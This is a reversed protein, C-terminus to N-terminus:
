VLERLFVSTEIPTRSLLVKKQRELVTQGIRRDQRM